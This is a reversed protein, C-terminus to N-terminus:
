CKGHEFLSRRKRIMKLSTGLSETESALGFIRIMSEHTQSRNISYIRLIPGYVYIGAASYASRFDRVSVHIHFNPILGRLEKELFIQKSNETDKSHIHRIHFGKLIEM